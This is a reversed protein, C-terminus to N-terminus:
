PQYQVVSKPPTTSPAPATHPPEVAGVAVGVLVGVSTGVAVLVEVGFGVGVL